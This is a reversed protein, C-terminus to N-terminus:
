WYIPKTPNLRVPHDIVGSVDTVSLDAGSKCKLYKRLINAAGNVDANVSVGNSSKYLGRKVRSGKYKDHHAVVELDLASCKSTYSEEHLNYSIGNMMCKSELKQKLRGFPVSVFNQNNIAGHNIENKIGKFDGIILTGINNAICYDTVTKVTKNFYDNIVNNRKQSLAIFRGTNIHIKDKDYISQIRSKEKNYFHNTSKVPKGDIIFSKGRQVDFCTLLNDLGCDISLKNEYNPKNNTTEKEYCFLIEYNKGNYTPKIQLQHLTTINLNTPFDLILNKKTISYLDRFKKTLGIYVKNGKIRASRGAIFISWGTDKDIYRPIHVPSSYKGKNKLKLLSFFSKFTKDVIRVVQQASDNILTSYHENSVIQHYQEMFPLYVNNNFYYQRINYVCSNYLRASHFSLKDVIMKDEDSLYLINKQTLIM